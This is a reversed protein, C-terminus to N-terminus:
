KWLTLEKDKGKKLPEYQNVHVPSEKLLLTTSDMEFIKSVVGGAGRKDYLRMYGMNPIFPIDDLSYDEPSAIRSFAIDFDSNDLIKESGRVYKRINRTYEDAGRSCHGILLILINHQVALEKLEKTHRSYLSTEEGSGGMMSLGDICLVDVKGYTKEAYELMQNYDAAQLGKSETFLLKDSLPNDLVYKKLEAKVSARDTKAKEELEGVFDKRNSFHNMMRDLQTELSMEMQSYLTFHGNMANMMSATMTFFSKKSGGYGIIMGLKGRYKNRMAEDFSPIGLTLPNDDPQKREEYDDLWLSIPKVVWGEFSQVVNKAADGYNTTQTIINIPESLGNNFGDMMTKLAHNIPDKYEHARARVAQELLLIADQQPYYGGAVYGGITRATKLLQHHKDTATMFKDIARQIQKELGATPTYSAPPPTPAPIYQKDWVTAGWNVYIEPDYSVYCARSIDKGSQDILHHSRYHLEIARWFLKYEDDSTVEPIRILAKLGTGSASTFAALTWEEASVLSKLHTIDPVDDFDLVALGSGLNVGTKSRGTAEAAQFVFAPLDKKETTNIVETYTGNYIEGLAKRLPYVYVQHDRVSNFKIIKADKM